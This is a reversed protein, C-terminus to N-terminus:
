IEIYLTTITVTGATGGGTGNSSLFFEEGAEITNDDMNSPVVKPLEISLNASNANAVPQTLDNPSTMQIVFSVGFADGMGAQTYYFAIPLMTKSPSSPTTTTLPTVNCANAQTFTFTESALLYRLDSELVGGVGTVDAALLVAAATSRGQFSTLGGGGGGGTGKKTNLVEGM